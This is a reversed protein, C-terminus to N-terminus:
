IAGGAVAGPRGQRRKRNGLSKVGERGTTTAAASTSPFEQRSASAGSARGVLQDEESMGVRPEAPM